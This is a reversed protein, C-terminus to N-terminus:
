QEDKKKRTRKPKTPLVENSEQKVIVDAIEPEKKKRIRKPKAPLVENSEQKVIVETIEPEKKKRIRKPKAQIPEQQATEAGSQVVVDSDKVETKRKRVTKKPKEPETTPVVSVINDVAESKKRMRKAAKSKDVVNASTDAPQSDPIIDDVQSKLAPEETTIAIDSNAKAAKKRSKKAVVKPGTVSTVEVATEEIDVVLPKVVEQVQNLLQEEQTTNAFAEGVLSKADPEAEKVLGIEPTEAKKEIQPAVVENGPFTHKKKKKKKKKAKTAEQQGVSNNVQSNDTQQAEINEVDDLYLDEDHSMLQEVNIESGGRDFFKYELFGLRQNPVITIPGYKRRWQWKLSTFFLGKTIYAEVFPHVHLLFEHKLTEALFAVKREIEETIIVSTDVKGTGHCTPCTEKLEIDVVPRVRQRTIQMLGFKSLPLVNHRARDNAMLQRVYEYLQQKHESTHMDIFDIVIIGGMDRLRLQHVIEDAAAINVDFANKEQDDDGKNKTGSNVDIVHLAETHDIILYAGNKCSVTRGMGSKLQRTVGYKDFMPIEDSYYEVINAREPAIVSVYEKIQNYCTIDNVYIHDFSPNLVDRIISMMRDVEQAVLLPLQTSHQQLHKMAEYWKDLLTDFENQLEDASKGEAVTRVIVGFGEPKFRMICQRLRSRESAKKIKTSVSVKDGFPILVMYRGAFSIEATLRPGKTSIPEKAVQVLIEDGVNLVDAIHGEKGTPALKTIDTIDPFKKRNSVLQKVYNNTTRFDSGLDYYHLFAEKHYGVDVFVANLAPLVKKVRGYYIDGVSYQQKVNDKSFEQLRGDELLAIEIEEKRVDVILESKM